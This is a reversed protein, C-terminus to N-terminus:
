ECSASACCGPPDHVEVGHDCVISGRLLLTPTGPGHSLQIIGETPKESNAVYAVHAPLLQM